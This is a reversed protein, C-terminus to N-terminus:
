NGAQGIWGRLTLVALDQRTAGLRKTWSTGLARLEDEDAYHADDLHWGARAYHAALVDTDDPTPEPADGVEPVPPRWAHLNLTILFRAGPRCRGAVAPLAPSPGAGTLARLLSGWPMLAHLEDIGDLEPPLREASAWVFVANPTGGKAPQQAARLAAKRM